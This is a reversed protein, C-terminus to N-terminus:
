AFADTRRGSGFFDDANFYGDELAGGENGADADFYVDITIYAGTDVAEIQTRGMSGELQHRVSVLRCIQNVYVNNEERTPGYVWSLTIYDGVTAHALKPGDVVFNVIAGEVRRRFSQRAFLVLAWATLDASRRLGRLTVSKRVEGHINLSINDQLTVIRSSRSNIAWNWLYDINLANVLHQLDGSMQVGDDGDVVDRSAIIHALVEDITPAVGRDVLLAITDEGTVYWSGMVNFMMENIWEGRAREDNVVWSTLYGQSAVAARATERMTNDFDADVLGGRTLLLDELQTINNEDDGALVKGVGRWSVVGDPQTVFDIIAILGQGEYNNSVSVTCAVGITQAIEGVYVNTISTVAHAAAAYVFNVTDICVAPVPGALGGASFDGYVDPLIDAASAPNAYRSARILELSTSLALHSMEALVGTAIAEIHSAM